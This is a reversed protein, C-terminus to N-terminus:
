APASESWKAVQGTRYARNGLHAAYVAQVGASLNSAVWDGGVSIAGTRVDANVAVGSRNFGVLINADHVSGTVTLSGLALASAINAATATTGVTNGALFIRGGDIERVKM